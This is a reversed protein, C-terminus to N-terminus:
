KVCVGSTHVISYVGIKGMYDALFQYYDKIERSLVPDDGFDEIRLNLDRRLIDMSIPRGHSYWELRDNHGMLGEAVEIARQERMERTVELNRTETRIWDKFKYRVLWEKLLCISLERAEEFTHLEALDLQQLLVLEASTIEGAKSREKLREFQVLYSLAPVLKGGREIQPDIPGLCSFYDMMIVDGSLAFVAGASMARNPVVMIVEEYHHRITNVMREVVEIIGGGTDLIIALKKQLGGLRQKRSEIAQRVADDIGPYIPGVIAMVDANLKTEIEGALRDLNSEVFANVKIQDPDPM